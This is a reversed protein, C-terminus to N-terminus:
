KLENKKRIVQIIRLKSDMPEGCLFLGQFTALSDGFNVSQKQRSEIVMSSTYVQTLSMGVLAGISRVVEM